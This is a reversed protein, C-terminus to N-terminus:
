FVVQVLIMYLITGGLISMLANHKWAQLGFVFAIGALEPMWSSLTTLQINRLCYVVLMGIVAQPLVHGLYVIFSPTKRDKAFVLFPLARLLITTLSMICVLIASYMM